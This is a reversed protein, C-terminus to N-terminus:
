IINQCSDGYYAELQSGHINSTAQLLENVGEETALIPHWTSNKVTPRSRMNAARALVVMTGLTSGLICLGLTRKWTWRNSTWHLSVIGPAINPPEVEPDDDCGPETQPPVTTHSSDPTPKTLSLSGLIELIIDFIENGVDAGYSGYAERLRTFLDLLGSVDALCTDIIDNVELMLTKDRVVEKSGPLYFTYKFKHEWWWVPIGDRMTSLFMNTTMQDLSALARPEQYTLNLYHGGLDAGNTARLNHIMAELITIMDERGTRILETASDRHVLPFEVGTGLTCLHLYVSMVPLFYSGWSQSGAPRAVYTDITVYPYARNGLGPDDQQPQGDQVPNHKSDSAKGDNTKGKESLRGTRKTKTRM